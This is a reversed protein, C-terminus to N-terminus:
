ALSRAAEIWASLKARAAGSALAEGARELGEAPSAALDAVVLAAATNQAVADRLAGAEGDLVRGLLALNEATDGGALAEVPADALGLAPADFDTSPADGVPVVENAGALTLEDAGGAGHVVYGRECGLEGLVAALQATRGPVGVGLLQRRVRAPNLLPGLLNFVTRVGLAKRVPGVFRFAPHWAPAFLFTIGVRDFVERAAAPDLELPVGAAELLDASGCKSSLARNGHKVVRAGCAAAVIAAATSLNFSGLGDGGTGCTDIPPPGGDDPLEFPVMAARLADVAGAIEARTEGRTAMSTLFGGLLAPEVGEVLVSAFVQRAQARDLAEGRLSRELADRLNV